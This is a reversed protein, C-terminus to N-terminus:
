FTTPNWTADSVLYADGVKQLTIVIKQQFNETVGAVTKVRRTLVEVRNGGLIKAGMSRTQIIYPKEGRLTQANKQLTAFFDRTTMQSLPAISREVTASDFSGYFETFVTATTKIHTDSVSEAVVPREEIVPKSLPPVVKENEPTAAVEVPPTNKMIEAVNQTNTNAAENNEVPKPKSVYSYVGFSIGGLAIIGGIIALIKKM